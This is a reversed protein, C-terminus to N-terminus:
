QAKGRSAPTPTAPEECSFLFLVQLKNDAGAQEAENMERTSDQMRLTAASEANEDKNALGGQELQQAVSQQPQGPQLGRGREKLRVAFGKESEALTKRARLLRGQQSLELQGDDATAGGLRGGGFTAGYSRYSYYKDRALSEQEAPVTGRNYRTLELNEALQQKAFVQPETAPNAIAKGGVTTSEDVVLGLFNEQDQNLGAVCAEIAAPPAEVLVADVTVAEVSQGTAPAAAGDSQGNEAFRRAARQSPDFNALASDEAAETEVEIGSRVLLHDFTRTELAARKAHVRVVLLPEEVSQAGDVPAAAQAGGAPAAGPEGGVATAGLDTGPALDHVEAPPTAAALRDAPASMEAVNEALAEEKVEAAPAPAPPAGYSRRAEEAPRAPSAPPQSETALGLNRARGRPPPGSAPEPAATTAPAASPAAADDMESAQAEWTFGAAPPPASDQDAAAPAAPENIARIEPIRAGGRAGELRDERQGVDALQDRQPDRGFVMILLAAAIALSAWVWGRRTRGFSFKPSDDHATVAQGNSADVHEGAAQLGATAVSQRTHEAKHLISERMDHGVVEQPLGQVAECVARLQHLLQQASPDAALRAEVAARDEPSLEDDLYASLLEDDLESQRDYNSM